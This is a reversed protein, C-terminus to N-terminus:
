HLCRTTVIICIILRREPCACLNKVFHSSVKDPHCRGIAKMYSIKVKGNTILEHMGIKKWEAGEWMVSDLSGLLARLNDRKGDRWAGIRADVKDALAFKEDDEKAASQNQARLRKVAESDQGSSSGNLDSLASPRPKPIPNPKIRATSARPALKPALAKDCRQRGQIASAGGVGHEVAMKWVERADAWKEMQELAEAKRTLAKGYFDKMDKRGNGEGSGLDISEGDGRSVGILALASDADVVAEKPVGTKLGTLARNCLLIITIPHQSPLASLSSSYSKHASDYDGKKYHETGALRHRTSSQLAISSVTPIQRPPAKPRTPVATSPQSSVPTSKQLPRSVTPRPQSVTGSSGSFLLDPEPEQQVPQPTKKRRAPSVYAQASQEEIVQKSVRSRHDTSPTPQQWRQVPSSRDVPRSPLASPPERTASHTQLRPEPPKTRRPPPRGGGELMMAEDTVEPKAAKRQDGETPARRGAAEREAVERMWKPQSSDSDQQFDAVARQVKKQSTKWLSNATKFLNNGVAAAAKSLDVDSNPTRSAERPPQSGNRHESQAWAPQRERSQSQQARSRDNGADTTKRGNDQGQQKQKAQRHADNLIWSVAAQIDLGSGSETLARRSQEASFGMDVLEAVAKDWPDDSEPESDIERELRPPSQKRVQEVPKGLDGLFDDDDVTTTAPAVQQPRAKLQNLGFPDDDDGLDLTQSSPKEWAQPQSLDVQKNAMPTGNRVPPTARAPPFHSSSDVATDKNFAAFLDDENQKNTTIGNNNAPPSVTRAAQSPIPNSFPTTSRSTTPPTFANSSAGLGEWANHSGYQAEYQKRQEAEKRAKEAQLKVQQEQLSLTNQKTSGFSVLNAFSDPTASKPPAFPKQQNSLPTNRGSSQPPPTPRLAPVSTYYNGTGQNIPPKSSSKTSSSWELGNLDDMPPLVSKM